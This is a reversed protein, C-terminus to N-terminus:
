NKFTMIKGSSKALQYVNSGKNKSMSDGVAIMGEFNYGADLYYEKGDIGVYPIDKEDYRISEVIGHFERNLNEKNSKATSLYLYAGFSICVIVFLILMLKNM